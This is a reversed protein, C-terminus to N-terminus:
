PVGKTPLLFWFWFRFVFLGQTRTKLICGCISSGPEHSVGFDFLKIYHFAWKKNRFCFFLLMKLPIVGVAAFRPGRSGSM